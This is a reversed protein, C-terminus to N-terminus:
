FKDIFLKDRVNAFSQNLSVQDNAEISGTSMFQDHWKKVQAMNPPDMGFESKYRRAAMSLSHTEEFWCVLKAKELMSLVRASSAM